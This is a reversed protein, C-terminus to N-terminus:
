RISALLEQILRDSTTLIRSSATFGTSYNILSIFENSLDANSLELAGGIIRGAGGTGPAVIGPIGSNATVNFLSAGEEILGVPNAFKALVDPKGRVFYRYVAPPETELGVDRYDDITPAWGAHDIDYSPNIIKKEVDDRVEPKLYAVQLLYDNDLVERSVGMRQPDFGVAAIGGGKGNGRNHMQVSPTFIHRGSIPVNCGFGVVGCGGEEVQKLVPGTNRCLDARSNIIKEAFDNM